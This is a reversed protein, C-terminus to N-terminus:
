IILELKNGRDPCTNPARASEDDGGGEPIEVAGPAEEAPGPLLPSSQAKGSQQSKPPGGASGKSGDTTGQAGAQTSALALAGALLLGATALCRATTRM